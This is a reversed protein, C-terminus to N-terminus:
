QNREHMYLDCKRTKNQKAKNKLANQPFQFSPETTVYRNQCLVQTPNRADCPPECSDMVGTRSYVLYVSTRAFLVSIYM